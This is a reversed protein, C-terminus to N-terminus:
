LVIKNEQSFSHIVCEASISASAISSFKVSNNYGSYCWPSPYMTCFFILSLFITTNIFLVFIFFQSSSWRERGCLQLCLSINKGFSQVIYPFLLSPYWRDIQEISLVSLKLNPVITINAARAQGGYEEVIPM